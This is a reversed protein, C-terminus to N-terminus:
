NENKDVLFGIVKAGNIYIDLVAYDYGKGSDGFSLKFTIRTSDSHHVYLLVDTELDELIEEADKRTGFIYEEINFGFDPSGFVSGKETTLLVKIQTIISEVEDTFDLVGDIYFPDKEDRIFIEKIM